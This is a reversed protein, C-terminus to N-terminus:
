QRSAPDFYEKVTVVVDMSSGAESTATLTDGSNLVLYSQDFKLFNYASLTYGAVISYTVSNHSDTWTLSVTKNGSGKNSVFLLVVQSTFNTPCQYVVTPTAATLITGKSRQKPTAM